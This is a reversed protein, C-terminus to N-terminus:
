VAIQPQRGQLSPSANLRAIAPLPRCLWGLNCEQVEVWATGQPPQTSQRLARCVGQQDVLAYHRMTRFPSLLRKLLNM